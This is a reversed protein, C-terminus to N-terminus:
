RHSTASPPTDAGSSRGSEEQQLTWWGLYMGLVVALVGFTVLLAVRLYERRRTSRRLSRSRGAWASGKRTRM